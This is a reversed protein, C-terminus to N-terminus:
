RAEFVVSVTDSVNKCSESSVSVILGGCSIVTRDSTKLLVQGCMELRPFSDTAHTPYDVVTVMTTPGNLWDKCADPVDAFWSDRVIRIATTDM